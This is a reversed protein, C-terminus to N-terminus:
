VFRVDGFFPTEHFNSMNTPNWAGLEQDPFTDPAVVTRFFNMRWKTGAAQGEDVNFLGLPISVESTWTEGPVDLTSNATLGDVLPETIFFTDFPAGPARLKSPNYIFAQFTVNNPSVEFELYTQPDAHGHYVLTELPQRHELTMTNNTPNYESFAEM